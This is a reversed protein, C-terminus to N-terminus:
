HVYYLKDLGGLQDELWAPRLALVMCLGMWGLALAGTLTTYAKRAPFFDASFNLIETPQAVAWLVIILLSLPLVIRKM